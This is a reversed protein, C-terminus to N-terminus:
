FHWNDKLIKNIFYTTTKIRSIYKIYKYLMEKCLNLNGDTTM